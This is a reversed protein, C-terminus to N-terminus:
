CGFLCVWVTSNAVGSLPFATLGTSCYADLALTIAAVILWCFWWPALGRLFKSVSDVVLRYSGRDSGVLAFWGELSPCTLYRPVGFDLM